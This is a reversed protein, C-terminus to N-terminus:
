GSNVVINWLEVGHYLMFISLYKNSIKFVFIM